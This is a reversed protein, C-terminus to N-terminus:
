NEQRWGLVFGFEFNLIIWFSLDISDSDIAIILIFKWDSESTAPPAAPAAEAAAEMSVMLIIIFDMAAM